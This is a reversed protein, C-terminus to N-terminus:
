SGFWGVLDRKRLDPADRSTVRGTVLGEPLSFLKM